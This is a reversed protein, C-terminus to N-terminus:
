RYKEEDGQGLDCGVKEGGLYWDSLRRRRVRMVCSLPTGNNDGDWGKGLLNDM